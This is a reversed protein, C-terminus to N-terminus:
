DINITDAVHTVESKVSQLIIVLNADLVSYKPEM